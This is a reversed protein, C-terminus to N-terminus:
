SDDGALWARLAARDPKLGRLAEAPLARIAVPLMYGPVHDRLRERVRDIAPDGRWGEVLLVARAGFERCPAPVAVRVRGEFLGAATSATEIVEPYVNEGGSVFMSDLRGTVWLTGQADVRGRDGTAYWGDPTVSPTVDGHADIFGSPLQPGRVRIEGARDIDLAVGPLVHGSSGAEADDPDCPECTVQSVTETMGYTGRVPWGARRAHRVLTPDIPGGGLLVVSLRAPPALRRRLIRRLQTDVLSVHTCDGEQVGADLQGPAEPLWVSARALVARVVIALGGVHYLPLSLLWRHGARFPLAANSSTASAVWAHPAHLVARGAGTSGSTRVVTAQGRWTEASCASLRAAHGSAVQAPLRSSLPVYVGGRAWTAFSDLVDEVGHGVVQARCVGPGVGEVAVKRARDRVAQAADRYTLRGGRWCLFESDPAEGAARELAEALGDGEGAGATMGLGPGAARAVAVGVRM